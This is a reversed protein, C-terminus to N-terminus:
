RFEVHELEPPKFTLWASEIQNRKILSDHRELDYACSTIEVIRPEVGEAGPGYPTKRSVYGYEEGGSATPCLGTFPVETFYRISEEFLLALDSAAGMPLTGSAPPEPIGTASWTGDDRVLVRLECTAPGDPTECAGGRRLYEFETTWQISQPAEGHCAAAAVILFATIRELRM